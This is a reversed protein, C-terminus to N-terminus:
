AAVGGRRPRAAEALVARHAEADAPSTRPLKEATRPPLTRAGGFTGTPLEEDFVSRRPREITHTM